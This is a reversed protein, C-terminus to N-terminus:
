NGYSEVGLHNQAGSIGIRVGISQKYQATPTVDQTNGRSRQRRKRETALVRERAGRLAVDRLDFSPGIQIILHPHSDVVIRYPNLEWRLGYRSLIQDIVSM